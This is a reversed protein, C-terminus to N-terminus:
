NKISIYPFDYNFNFTISKRIDEYCVDLTFNENM